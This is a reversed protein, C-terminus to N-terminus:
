TTNIYKGQKEKDESGEIEFCFYCLICSPTFPFSRYFM